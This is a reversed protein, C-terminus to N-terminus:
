PALGNFLYIWFYTSVSAALSISASLTVAPSVIKIASSLVPDSSVADTFFHVSHVAAFFISPMLRGDKKSQTTYNCSETFLRELNPLVAGEYTGSGIYLRVSPRWRRM